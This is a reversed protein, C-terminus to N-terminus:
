CRRGMRDMLVGKLFFIGGRGDKVDRRDKGIKWRSRFLGKM